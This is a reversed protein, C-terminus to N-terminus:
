PFARRTQLLRACDVLVYEHSALPPASLRQISLEPRRTKDGCQRHMELAQLRTVRVDVSSAPKEHRCNIDARPRFRVNDTLAIRPLWEISAGRAAPTKKAALRYAMLGRSLPLQIPKRGHGRSGNDWSAILISPEMSGCRQIRSRWSLRESRRPEGGSIPKSRRNKSGDYAKRGNSSARGLGRRLAERTRLPHHRLADSAEPNTSEQPVRKVTAAHSM